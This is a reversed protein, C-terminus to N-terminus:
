AKPNEDLPPIAVSTTKVARVLGTVILSGVVIMGGLMYYVSYNYAAPMGPAKEGNEANPISDKCMPCAVVASSSGLVLVLLLSAVFRKM